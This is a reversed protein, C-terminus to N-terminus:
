AGISGAYFYWGIGVSFLLDGWLGHELATQLLSGSRLYTRAFLLGGLATFLPAIWNGLFAHAWGFALASALMLQWPRRFLPAYRHMFYVRYILEQPYASLVPYCCMVVLWFTPANLPFALFREPEYYWSFATCFLGLPLMVSLTRAFHRWFDRGNWLRQMDFGPTRRLLLWCVLGALMILPIILGRVSGRVAFLLGPLGVFVLLLEAWLRASASRELTLTEGYTTDTGDM